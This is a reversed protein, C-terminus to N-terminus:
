DDAQPNPKPPKRRRSQKARRETQRQARIAPYRSMEALTRLVCRQTARTWIEEIGVGTQESYVALDTDDPWVHGNEWDSPLGSNVQALRAIDEQTILPDTAERAEKIVEGLGQRMNRSM